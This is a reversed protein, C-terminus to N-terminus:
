NIIFDMSQAVDAGRECTGPFECRQKSGQQLCRLRESGLLFGLRGGKARFTAM